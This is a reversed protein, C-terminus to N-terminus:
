AAPESAGNGPRAALARARRRARWRQVALRARALYLYIVPTTYLTILQSAILGGVISIGLPRRMETGDGVSLALPV